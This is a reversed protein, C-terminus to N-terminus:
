MKPPHHCLIHCEKDDSAEQVHIVPAVKHVGSVIGFACHDLFLSKM